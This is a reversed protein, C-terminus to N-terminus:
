PYHAPDDQGAQTLYQAVTTLEYNYQIVTLPRSLFHPGINFRTVEWLLRSLM